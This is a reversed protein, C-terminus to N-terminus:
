SKPVIKLEKQLFKALGDSNNTFDTIKDAFDFLEKNANSMVVGCGAAEIMSIDNQEDGFAYSDSVPINLHNCLWTLSAGKGATRDIIEVYYDNSFMTQLHPFLTEIKKRFVELRNRDDLDILLMKCPGKEMVKSPSDTVIVPLPCRITYYETERDNSPVVLEDDTYTQIHIKEDCALQWIKTVDDMNLRNEFIVEENACDYVLTGNTAAIYVGDFNLCNDNKVKIISKLSRGSSLVLKHGMLSFDKLFGRTYDSVESANNLLTGDLDTFVIKAM